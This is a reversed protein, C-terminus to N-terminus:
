IRDQEWFDLLCGASFTMAIGVAFVKLPGSGSM